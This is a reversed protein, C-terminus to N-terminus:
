YTPSGMVPRPIRRRPNRGTGRQTLRALANGIMGRPGGNMPRQAMSLTQPAKYYGTALRQTMTGWPSMLANM